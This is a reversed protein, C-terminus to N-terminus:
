LLEVAEIYCYKSGVSGVFKTTLVVTRSALKAATLVSLLQSANPSDNPVLAYNLSGTDTVKCLGLNGELQIRVGQSAHFTEVKLRSIRGTVVDARAETAGALTSAMTLACLAIWRGVRNRSMM